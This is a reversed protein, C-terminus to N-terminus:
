RGREGHRLNIYIRQQGRKRAVATLVDSSSVIGIPRRDEDVVILRHIHAGSM